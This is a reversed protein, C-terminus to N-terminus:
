RVFQQRNKFYDLVIDMLKCAVERKHNLPIHHVKMDKDIVYLENTLTRFGRGDRSVDNAAILDMQSEKLKIHARKILEDDTVATEAKFGVLFVNKDFRRVESIIKPLPKFSISLENKGTPIKLKEMNVPAYDSVAAPHIVIDYKKEKLENLIAGLMEEVTEVRITRIHEPPEVIGVGYILTVDAGRAEAELAIEIGTRGSSANGIFRIPDIYERTGGATVLVKLGEFDNRKTLINITRAVISETTAIKAKGEELRPSIFIVGLKKLKEINDKVVSHNYMSEHMAPVIAIPIGAGFATSVVTTVTTDDIGCAVKSITNATCPAILVLDVHGLHAGALEVHELLGDLKTVVRNGTAWQMLDASILALASQTMVAFVEAGNRMLERAIIPSEIAAVSGTICLAIKKNKLISSKAGIIEKSVHSTSLM